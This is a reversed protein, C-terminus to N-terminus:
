DLVEKFTESTINGQFALFVEPKKKEAARKAHQTAILSKNKM